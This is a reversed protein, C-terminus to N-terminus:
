LKRSYTLDRTIEHSDCYEFENMQLTKLLVRLDTFQEFEQKNEIKAKLYRLKTQRECKQPLKASYTRVLLLQTRKYGQNRESGLSDHENTFKVEIRIFFNEFKLVKFKNTNFTRSSENTEQWLKSFTGLWYRDLAASPQARISRIKQSFGM